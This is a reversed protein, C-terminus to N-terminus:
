KGAYEKDAQCGHILSDVYRGETELFIHYRKREEFKFNNKELVTVHYPRLDYTETFLRQLKLEDFAIKKLIKLFIDFYKPHKGYDRTLETKLLFSVEARKASWDIHTLGGYGILNNMFLYSFLIIDPADSSISPLIVKNWYRKQDEVTLLNKQRLIEIQENRWKRIFM